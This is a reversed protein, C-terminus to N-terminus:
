SLIIRELFQYYNKLPLTDGTQKVTTFAGKIADEMFHVTKITPFQLQIEKQEKAEELVDGIQNKIKEDITVVANRIKESHTSMENGLNCAMCGRQCQFKSEMKEIRSKYFSLLRQKPSFKKDYLIEATPKFMLEYYRELARVAFDEKSEFYFYFSGKPVNAAKVIDNVSTGNYGKSWLIDAGKDLLYETKAEHKGTKQM